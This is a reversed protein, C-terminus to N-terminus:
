VETVATLQLIPLRPKPEIQNQPGDQARSRQVPVTSLRIQRFQHGNRGVGIVSTLFSTVSSLTNRTALSTLRADNATSTTASCRFACGCTPRVSERAFLM